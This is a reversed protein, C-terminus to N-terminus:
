TISRARASGGITTSHTGCPDGLEDETNKTSQQTPAAGADQPQEAQQEERQRRMELIDRGLAALQDAVWVLDRAM